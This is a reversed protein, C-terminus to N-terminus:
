HLCLFDCVLEHLTNLIGQDLIRGIPHVRSIRLRPKLAVESRHLREKGLCQGRQKLWKRLPQVLLVLQLPMHLAGVANPGPRRLRAALLLLPQHAAHKGVPGIQGVCGLRNRRLM